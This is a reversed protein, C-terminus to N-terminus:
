YVGKCYSGVSILAGELYGAETEAYEAGVFSVNQSELEKKYPQLNIAPHRSPESTDDGTCVWEDQAWDKLEVAQPSAAQEGFISVLQQLCHQKLEDRGIRKRQQASLGVFGFLVYQEGNNFDNCADHIEVLPGVRSFVDGSLGSERWFATSYQAIFKAQAAMWTPTQLLSAVCERSLYDALPLHALLIRPPAAFVVHKANIMENDNGLLWGSGHQCLSKVSFSLRFSMPDLKNQLTDVLAEMGGKVRYSLMGNAEPSKQPPEDSSMQYLVGGRSYQEFFPLQLENLLKKMNHQHPWFWTPGLDFSGETEGSYIRGGLQSKAELLMYSINKQQLRYALYTGALGGGVIAVDVSGM